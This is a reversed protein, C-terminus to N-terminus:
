IPNTYELSVSIVPFSIRIPTSKLLVLIVETAELQKLPHKESVEIVKGSPTVLKPEAQKRLHEDSVEMVSGSLKVLIPSPANSLQM